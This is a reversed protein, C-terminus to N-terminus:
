YLAVRVMHVSWTDMKVEKTQLGSQHLIQCIQSVKITTIQLYFGLGKACLAFISGGRCWRLCYSAEHVEKFNEDLVHSRLIFHLTNHIM